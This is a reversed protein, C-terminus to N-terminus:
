WTVPLTVPARTLLGAKWEVSSEPVALRLDPLRRLLTTFATQLEVRALPAGVCHHIGHGFAMHKTPPRTVDFRDPNATLDGDRDASYQLPIVTSGAAMRVRAQILGTLLDDVIEQVRPRMREGARVTFAVAVLRRVRTHEPADMSLILFPIQRGPRLVPVGPRTAEARSFVPDAFVRRVDNYRAVLYVEGGPALRVKPVPDQLRLRQYEPEDDLDPPPRAPAVDV